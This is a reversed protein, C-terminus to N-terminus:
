NPALSKQLHRRQIYDVLSRVWIEFTFTVHLGACHHNGTRIRALDLRQVHMHPLSQSHAPWWSTPMHLVLLPDQSIYMVNMKALLSYPLLREPESGWLLRWWFDLVPTDTTGFLVHTRWCVKFYFIFLYFYCLNVGPAVGATRRSPWGLWGM